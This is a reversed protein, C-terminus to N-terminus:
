IRFHHGRFLSNPIYQNLLSNMLIRYIVATINYMCAYSRKINDKCTIYIYNIGAFSSITSEGLYDFALPASSRPSCSEWRDLFQNM